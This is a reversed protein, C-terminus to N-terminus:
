STQPPNLFEIRLSLYLSLSDWRVLLSKFSKLITRSQHETNVTLDMRRLPKATTTM